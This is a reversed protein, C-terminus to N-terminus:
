LLDSNLFNQLLLFIPYFMLLKIPKDGRFYKSKKKPIVVPKELPQVNKKDEQYKKYKKKEASKKKFEPKYNGKNKIM